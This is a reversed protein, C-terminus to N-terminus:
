CENNYVKDGKIVSSFYNGRNLSLLSKGKVAAVTVVITLYM